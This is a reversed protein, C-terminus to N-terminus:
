RNELLDTGFHPALYFIVAFVGVAAIALFMVYQRLRGTQLRRLWFGTAFVWDAVWNVIGDIIRFDFRGDLSSVRVTWRAAGDIIGDLVNWDFGRCSQAIGLLPQVFVARYLEDFYWKNWLFRYLVPFQRPLEAPSLVRFLYFLASMLIGALVVGSAVWGAQQHIAEPPHSLAVDPAGYGLLRELLPSPGGFSYGVAISPVALIALPVWMTATSEHAHDHVHHDRPEGTFTLFFLRFMYFATIGAGATPLLFLLIHQPNEMCGFQMAQAVIADKSYYGSFGLIGSIALVGILMTIATIPMKRFLAGMQPM